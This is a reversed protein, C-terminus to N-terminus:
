CVLTLSRNADYFRANHFCAFPDVRSGFCPDFRVASYGLVWFVFPLLLVADSRDFRAAEFHALMTMWALLM